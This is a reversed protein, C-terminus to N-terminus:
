STMSWERLCMPLSQSTQLRLVPTVVTRAYNVTCESSADALRTRCKIVMQPCRRFSLSPQWRTVTGSARANCVSSNRAPRTDPRRCWKALSTMKTGHALKSSSSLDLRLHLWERMSLPKFLRWCGAQSRSLITTGQHIWAMRLSGWTNIRKTTGSSQWKDKPLERSEKSLM